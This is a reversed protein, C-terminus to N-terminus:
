KAKAMPKENRLETLAQALTSEDISITPIITATTTVQVQAVDVEMEVVKDDQQAVFVEEPRNRIELKKVRRKLIKIEMAQTTKTTELDLARQQLKTCLEMLEILKLSDEESRPTNFELLLPDNSIKSVRESWTQAVTDGWPKKAGIDEQAQVMMTPFLPTDRGSFGKGVRKMNWFIKKTYSTTVYIRKYHSM